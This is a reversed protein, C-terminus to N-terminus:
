REEEATPTTKDNQKHRRGLIKLRLLQPLADGGMRLERHCVSLPEFECLEPGGLQGPALLLTRM